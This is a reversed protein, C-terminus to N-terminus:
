PQEKRRRAVAEHERRLEAWLELVTWRRNTKTLVAKLPISIGKQRLEALLADLEPETFDAMVLLPEAPADGSAPARAQGAGDALAGLECSLDGADLERLSFGAAGIAEAAGAPLLYGLALPQRKTLHAKM